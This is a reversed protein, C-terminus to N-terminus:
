GQEDRPELDGLGYRRLKSYLGQRSLGLMEAASARNDRTMELAAEICLREIMDATERVLDKLSVRGVLETFQEVSRPLERGGLAPAGGRVVAARLTFGWCPPDTTPVSVATIEVDEVTGLEGRVVTSFHRVAGNDRLSAAIVDMDVGERGLWRDLAQGRAQEETALQALDLFAANTSLVRGSTDTLVFGEPLADLVSELKAGMRPADPESALPSLRLLCYTGGHQRYLSGTATVEVGSAALRLRQEPVQGTVRLAGMLAPLAQASDPSLLDALARGTARKSPVGLVKLAAPNAEIVKETGVDLILVPESALQFLLRYRTESSRLREYERELSQQAAALKQQLSAMARLDRGILLMRGDDGLRIASYRVPLDSGKPSPHNVQRWRSLGKGAGEALLEDVKQRSEITVVDALRQNVWELCGEDALDASAFSLDRIVGARDIALAIDAAVGILSAALDAGLDGLFTRANAFSKAAHPPVSFHMAAM